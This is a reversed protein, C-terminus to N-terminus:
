TNEYNESVTREWAKEELPILDPDAYDSLIGMVSAATKGEKKQGELFCILEQMQLETLSDIIAHLRERTSM